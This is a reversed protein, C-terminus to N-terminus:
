RTVTALLDHDGTGEPGTTSYLTFPDLKTKTWSINGPKGM